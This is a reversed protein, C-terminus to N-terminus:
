CEVQMFTQNTRFIRLLDVKYYTNNNQNTSRKGKPLSGPVFHVGEKATLKITYTFILRFHISSKVYTASM